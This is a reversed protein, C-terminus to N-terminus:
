LVISPDTPVRNPAPRVPARQPAPGSESSDSASSGGVPAKEANSGADAAGAVADGEGREGVGSQEPEGDEGSGNSAEGALRLIQEVGGQPLQGAQQMVQMPVQMMQMPMQGFQQGIQAASQATQQAGSGLAAPSSPGAADVGASGAPPHGQVLQGFQGGSALAGGGGATDPPGYLADFEAVRQMVADYIEQDTKEYRDAAVGMDSATKLADEKVKPLSEIFAAERDQLLKTLAVSLPDSGSSTFPAPPEPLSGAADELGKSGSRLEAVNVKLEDM